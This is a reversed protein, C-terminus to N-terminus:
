DEPTNFVRYIKRIIWYIVYIKQYEFAMGILNMISVAITKDYVFETYLATYILFGFLVVYPILAIFFAISLVCHLKKNYFLKSM